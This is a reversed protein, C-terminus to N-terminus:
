IMWIYIYERGGAVYPYKPIENVTAGQSANNQRAVIDIHAHSGSISRM